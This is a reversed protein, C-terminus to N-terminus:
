SILVFSIHSSYLWKTDVDESFNFLVDAGAPSCLSDVLNGIEELEFLKLSGFVYIWSKYICDWYRGPTNIM